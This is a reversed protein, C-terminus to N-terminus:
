LSGQLRTGLTCTESTIDCGHRISLCVCLIWMLTNIITDGHTCEQPLTHTPPCGRVHSSPTHNNIPRGECSSGVMQVGHHLDHADLWLTTRSSPSLALSASKPKTAGSGTCTPEVLTTVAAPAILYRAGSNVSPFCPVWLSTYLEPTTLQESIQLQSM